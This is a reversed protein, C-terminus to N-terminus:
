QLARDIADILWELKVVRPRLGQELTERRPRRNQGLVCGSELLSALEENLVRRSRHLLRRMTASKDAM